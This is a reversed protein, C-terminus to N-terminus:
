RRLGTPARQQRHPQPSGTLAIAFIEGTPRSPSVEAESNLTGSPMDCHIYLTMTDFLGYNQPIIMRMQSPIFFICHFADLVTSLNAFIISWPLPGVLTLDASFLQVKCKTSSTMSATETCTVKVHFYEQLNTAKACTAIFLQSSPSRATRQM